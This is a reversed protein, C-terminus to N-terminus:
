FWHLLWHNVAWLDALTDGLWIAVLVAVRASRRM